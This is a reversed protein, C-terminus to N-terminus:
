VGGILRGDWRTLRAGSGYRGLQGYAESVVPPNIFGGGGALGTLPQTGAGVAQGVIGQWAQQRARRAREEAEAQAVEGGYRAIGIQQALDTAQDAIFDLASLNGTGSAARRMAALERTGQQGIQRAKLDAALRAQKGEHRALGAQYRADSLSSLGQMVGQAAMPVFQAGPFCM